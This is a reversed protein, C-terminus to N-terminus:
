HATRGSADDMGWEGNGLDPSSVVGTSQVLVGEWEEMNAAGTGLVEADPLANGQSLISTAIPNGDVGELQTLGFYEDVVGTLSVFDGVTLAVEPNFGFMGSNAGQGQQVSFLSGYVGTVIGSVTVLSDTFVPPDLSQGQQITTIAIAGDVVNCGTM